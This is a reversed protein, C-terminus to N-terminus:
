QLVKKLLDVSLITRPETGRHEVWHLIDGDTFAMTQGKQWVYPEEGEMYFTAKPDTHLGLHMRFYDTSVGYHPNITAGPYLRNFGVNGLVPFYPMILNMFLPCHRRRWARANALEPAYVIEKENDDLLEPKLLLYLSRVDGEIMPQNVQTNNRGYQGMSVSKPKQNVTCIEFLNDAEEAITIYNARLMKAFPLDNAQPIYGKM